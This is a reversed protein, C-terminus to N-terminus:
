LRKVFERLQKRLFARQRRGDGGLVHWQRWSVHLLQLGRARLLSCRLRTSGAFRGPHTRLYHQPGNSEVVLQLAGGRLLLLTDLSFLRDATKVEMSPSLGLSQLTRFVEAQFDSIVSDRALQLFTARGIQLLRAPLLSALRRGGPVLDQLWMCCHFLQTCGRSGMRDARQMAVDGFLVTLLEFDVHGVVALSWCINTLSWDHLAQPGATRLVASVQEYLEQDEHGTYACALMVLALQNTVAPNGEAAVVAEVVVRSASAFLKPAYHGSSGLSWLVNALALSVEGPSSKKGSSSSSSSGGSNSSSESCMQMAADAIADYLAEDYHRVAAYAWAIHALCQAAVEEERLRPGLIAAAATFLASDNHGLTALSWLIIALHRTDLAELRSQVASVLDPLLGPPLQAKLAESAASIAASVELESLALAEADSRWSGTSTRDASGHTATGRTNGGAGVPGVSHTASGAATVVGAEATGAESPLELDLDMEPALAAQRVTPLFLSGCDGGGHHRGTTSGRDTTSPIEASAGMAAAAAATSDQFCRLYPDAVGRRVRAALTQPVFAAESAMVDRGGSVDGGATASAAATSAGATVMRALAWCLLALNRADLRPLRKMLEQVVAALLPVDRVGLKAYAWMIQVLGSPGFSAATRCILPSAAALLAPQPMGIRAYAWLMNSFDQPCFKDIQTVSADALGRMLAVHTPHTDDQRAAVFAYALNAIDFPTLAHLSGLSLEALRRWAVTDACGMRALAWAANAIGQPTWEAPFGGGIAGAPQSSSGLPDSDADTSFLVTRVAHWTDPSPVHGLKAWVWLANCLERTGCDQLRALLMSDLQTLLRHLVPQMNPKQVDAAKALRNLCCSVHFHNFHNGYQQVYTELDSLTSSNSLLYTLKRPTVLDTRRVEVPLPPPPTFAAPAATAPPSPLSPSTRTWIHQKCRSSAPRATAHTPSTPPHPGPVHAPLAPPLPDQGSAPRSSSTAAAAAHKPKTDPPTDAFAGENFVLALSAVSSSPLAGDAAAATAAAIAAGAGIITRRYRGIGHAKADPAPVDCALARADHSQVESGSPTPLWSRQNKRAATSRLGDSDDVRSTARELPQKRTRWQASTDAQQAATERCTTSAGHDPAGQLSACQEPKSAAPSFAVDLEADYSHQGPPHLSHLQSSRSQLVTDTSAIDRCTLGVLAANGTTRLVASTRLDPNRSACGCKLWAGPCDSKASITPLRQNTYISQSQRHTPPPRAATFGSTFSIFCGEIAGDRRSKRGYPAAAQQPLSM